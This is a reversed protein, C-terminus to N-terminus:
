QMIICRPAVLPLEGLARLEHLLCVSAVILYVFCNFNRFVHCYMYPLFGKSM